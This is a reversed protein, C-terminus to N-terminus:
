KPSRLQEIESRLAKVEELVEESAGRQPNLLIAAVTGSFTSFLGVGTAMLIAAVIRGAPTTPYKDGYGVTTVTTASWWVADGATKINADKRDKEFSLMVSGCTVTM